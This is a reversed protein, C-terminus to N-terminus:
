KGLKVGVGSKPDFVGAQVLCGAFQKMTLGNFRSGKPFVLDMMISVSNKEYIFPCHQINSKKGAAFAGLLLVDGDEIELSVRDYENRDDCKANEEIKTDEVYEPDQADQPKTDEVYWPDEVDMADEALETNVGCKADEADQPKTEVDCKADEANMAHEDRKRIRRFRFVKNVDDKVQNHIRALGLRVGPEIGNHIFATLGDRHWEMKSAANSEEDLEPLYVHVFIIIEIGEDECFILLPEIEPCYKKLVDFTLPDGKFGTGPEKLVKLSQSYKRNYKNGSDIVKNFLFDIFKKSMRNGQLKDEENLTLVAYHGQLDAYLAQDGKSGDNSLDQESVKAKKSM